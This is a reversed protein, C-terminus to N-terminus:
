VCRDECVKANAKAEEVDTWRAAEGTLYVRCCCNCVIRHDDRSCFVHYHAGCDSVYVVQKLLDMTPNAFLASSINPNLIGRSRAKLLLNDYWNKSSQFCLLHLVSHFPSDLTMCGNNDDSSMECSALVDQPRLALYSIGCTYNAIRARIARLEGRTVLQSEDTANNLRAHVESFTLPKAIAAAPVLGSLTVYMHCLFAVFESESLLYYGSSSATAALDFSLKAYLLVTFVCENWGAATATPHTLIPETSRCNSELANKPDSGSDSSHQENPFYEKTAVLFTHKTLTLLLITAIQNVLLKQLATNGSDLGRSNSSSSSSSSSSSASEFSECVNIIKSYLEKFKLMPLSVSKRTQVPEVHVEDRRPMVDEQIPDVSMLPDEIVPAQEPKMPAVYAPSSPDILEADDIEAVTTDSNDDDNHNGLAQAVVPTLRCVRVPEIASLASASIMDQFTTKLLDVIHHSHANFNFYLSNVFAITTPLCVRRVHYQRRASLYLTNAHHLVSHATSSHVIKLKMKGDYRCDIVLNSKVWLKRQRSLSALDKRNKHNDSHGSHPMAMGLKNILPEIIVYVALKSTQPLTAAFNGIRQWLSTGQPTLKMGAYFREGKLCVLRYLPEGNNSNANHLPNHASLSLLSSTTAKPLTGVGFLELLRGEFDCLVDDLDICIRITTVKSFTSTEPDMM